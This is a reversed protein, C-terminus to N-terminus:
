EDGEGPDTDVQCPCMGHMFTHLGEYIGAWRAIRHAWAVSLRGLVDTLM